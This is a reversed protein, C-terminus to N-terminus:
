EIYLWAAVTINSPNTAFTPTTFKIEFFDGASVAVSLGTAAYHQAVADMKVASSITTDSTNNLRMYFTSSENTALTGSVGVVLDIRTITGSASFYVPFLAPTTTTGSFGLYYTTADLVTTLAAAARNTYGLGTNSITLTDTGANTTLSIRTGAALTLTDAASDAVIDSQGAVSITKFALATYDTGATAASIATGNGKLLGSISTQMTISVSGTPNTVVASFGNASAVAVNTVTGVGGSGGGLVEYYLGGRNVMDPTINPNDLVQVYKTM